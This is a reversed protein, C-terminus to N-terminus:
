LLNLARGLVEVLEGMKFPKSIYGTFGSALFREKDGNMAYATVAIIPINEYGDIKRIVQTTEVGNMGEGLGIDMLIAEYKKVKVLEVAEEGSQITDMECLDVLFKKIIHTNMFDDEVLLVKPKNQPNVFQKEEKTETIVEENKDDFSTIVRPFQITFTSGLGLESEVSITGGLIETYKKAVTLGLGTGEYHRSLGESAQRFEDFIINIDKESIGIGTDAIEIVAYDKNDMKKGSCTITVGGKSTFKIANSVVNSVATRFLDKDLNAILFDNKCNLRLYIGKTILTPEFDLTIEKILDCINLQQINIAPKESELKSIQLIKNLTELLRQGNIAIANIMRKHEVDTLEELLIESFGLIGSLPTRLEHSMNSFFNSKIRNLEEAKEKAAILEQEAEKKITIDEKVAIFSIIEGKSNKIPSISASEWYLEGSKKRNHFEGRWTEGSTITGWLQKYFEKTHEGSSLVRPNQGLLEEKAYGTVETYKENVYEIIADKNAIMVSTSSQEIAKSLQSIKEFAKTQETIDLVYGMLKELKGNEDFQGIVNELIIIETGDKRKMRIEKNEIKSKEFLESILEARDAPNAYLDFSSTQYVEKENEFGFIAAFKKNCLLVKGDITSLFDGTLDNNFIERYEKERRKVVDLLMLLETVNKVYVSVGIIEGTDNKIPHHTVEFYLQEHEKSGTITVERIVEGNLAKDLSIKAKERDEETQYDLLCEGLKIDVGYITKMAKVHNSNFCTYCYNKDVAFIIDSTSEIISNLKAYENFLNNEAKIKDTVDTSMVVRATWGNFKIFQSNIEVFIIKGDKTKHRCYNNTSKYNEYNEIIKLYEPIDEEPIIEKITMNLFEEKTYGYKEIAANNVMLFKLSKNDYFWMPQPNNEFLERYRIENNKIRKEFELHESIDRVSILALDKGNQNFYSISINAPFETGDKKKHIRRGVRETFNEIALVSKEPEGSLNIASMKLLEDRTYGYLSLAAENVDIIKATNRDIIVIADSSKEFILKFFEPDGPKDTKSSLEQKLPRVFNVFHIPKGRNDKQLTSTLEVWVPEGNKHIYRKNFTVIEKEANLLQRITEDSKAADDKHTISKWHMNSLEPVEYGLINYFANNVKLKGNLQTLSIGIPSNIFLQYFKEEEQKRNKISFM